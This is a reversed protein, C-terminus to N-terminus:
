VVIDDPLANRINMVEQDTATGPLLLGRSNGACMRGVLKSSAVTGRFCNVGHPALTSELM